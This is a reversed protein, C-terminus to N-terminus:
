FLYVISFNPFYYLLHTVPMVACQMYINDAHRVGFLAYMVKTFEIKKKEPPDKGCGIFIAIM